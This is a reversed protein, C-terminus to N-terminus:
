RSRVALKQVRGNSSNVRKGVASYSNRKKTLLKERLEHLYNNWTNVHWAGSYSEVGHYGSSRRRSMDITVNRLGRIGRLMEYGEFPMYVRSPIKIDLTHLKHCSKLLYFAENAYQGAWDFAVHTVEQRRLSGIRTLFIFLSGTDGFVIKNVNYFIHYAEKFTIKSVQLLALLSVRSRKAPTSRLMDVSVGGIGFEYTLAEKYIKNRVEPPFPLHKSSPMSTTPQATNMRDNM